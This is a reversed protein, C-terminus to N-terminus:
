LSRRERARKRIYARYYENFLHEQRVFGVIAGDPEDLVPLEPYGTERFVELATNLTDTEYVARFPVMADEAIILHEVTEDSHLLSQIEEMLVLGAYGSEGERAVPLVVEDTRTFVDILEGLTHSVDVVHFDQPEDMVRSIPVDTLLDPTLTTRHAPSDGYSPVQAEYISWKRALLTTLVGCLILPVLLTYSGTMESILITTSVPVNAVAAFFTAMGILVYAEPQSALQPALHNLGTGAMGGLMGGIVLTPGFVGGAGGSGVTLTTALIKLGALLGMIRLPLNGNMAQQLWGYGTSLIAPFFVALLGVGLGGLAPRLYDPLDVVGALGDRYTSFISVFAMGILGALLAFGVLPLLEMAQFLEFTPADFLPRAGAVSTYISYGVISAVVSPVLAETELDERYLVEIAFFAAGLPAQFVSAVGAAMGALLLIRRDREGLGLYRGLLVSMGSSIQAIPGERGASGGTGLTAVSALLKVTPVRGRINGKENHFAGIVANMGAGAAEPAYQYTLVGSILGGLTPILLLWLRRGPRLAEQLDFSGGVTGPAPLQYGVVTGIMREGVWTSLWVFLLAALAGLLGALASYLIWQGTIRWEFQDELINGLPRM